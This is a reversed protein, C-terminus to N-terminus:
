RTAPPELLILLGSSDLKGFGAKSAEAYLDRARSMVDARAGAREALEWALTLDKHALDVQFGPRYDRKM